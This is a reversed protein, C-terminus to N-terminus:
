KGNEAYWADLQKQKEAIITDIGTAKLQELYKPLHEAPDLTGTSLGPSYENSTNTIATLESSVPTSDYSFGLVPSYIASKNNAQLRSYITTDRGEGWIYSLFQNGMLWDLNLGYTTTNADVGEPFDITGDTMKVYHTGEVGWSLLNVIDANTYMENLFKMVAEPHESTASLGFGFSNVGQTTITAKVLKIAEVDVGTATKIQAAQGEEGSIFFGMTRGSQLYIQPAETSTAADSLIYGKQYWDHAYGLLTKYEETEAYNIVTKGDEALVGVSDGLGDLGPAVSTFMLNGTSTPVLCVKDPQAEKMQAFIKTLEDLNACYEEFNTAEKINATSINNDVLVKKDLVINLTAAKGNLTPIAYLSGSITTTKLFKEGVAEKAGAAYTDVYPNMDMLQGKSVMRALNANLTVLDIPEGGTMMLGVQNDYDAWTIPNLKVRVKIKEETIKNIEDQVMQVGEVIQGCPFTFVIEEIEQTDEANQAGQTVDGSKGSGNEATEKSGGCAILSTCLVLTLLLAMLKKM